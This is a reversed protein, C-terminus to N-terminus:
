EADTDPDYADARELPLAKLQRAIVDIDQVRYVCGSPTEIPAYLIRSWRSRSMDPPIDGGITPPIGVERLLADVDYPEIDSLIDVAMQIREVKRMMASETLPVTRIKSSGRDFLTFAAGVTKGPNAERVRWWYFSLQSLYGYTDSPNNAFPSILHPAMSKCELVTLVNDHEVIIDAHGTVDRYQVTAEQKFRYEMLNLLEAVVEQAVIGNLMTVCQATTFRRKGGYWKDLTQAIWAKGISSARYRTGPVDPHGTAEAVRRQVRAMFDRHCELNMAGELNALLAETKMNLM